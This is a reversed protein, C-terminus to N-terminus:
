SRASLCVVLTFEVLLPEDALLDIRSSKSAEEISPTEARGASELGVPHGHSDDGVAVSVRV